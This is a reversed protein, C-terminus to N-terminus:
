GPERKTRPQPPAVAQKAKEIVEPASAKAPPKAPPPTSVAVVDAPKPIDDFPFVSEGTSGELEALREFKEVFQVLRRRSDPNKISEQWEPDDVEDSVERRIRLDIQAKRSPLLGVREEFGVRANHVKLATLIYLNKTRHNKTEGHGQAAMGFLKNYVAQRLGVTAVVDTQRMTDSMVDSLARLDEYILARSVGLTEAAVQPSYDRMHVLEFVRARRQEIAKQSFKLPETTTRLAIATERRKNPVGKKRGRPM